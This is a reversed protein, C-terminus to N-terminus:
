PRPSAGAEVSLVRDVVSYHSIPHLARQGADTTVTRVVLRLLKGRLVATTM